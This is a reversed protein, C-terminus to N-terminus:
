TMTANPAHDILDRGGRATRRELGGLQAHLRPIDFLEVRKSNILPLFEKYLESKSKESVRYTVGRQEFRERVFEGGWRDGTVEHIGYRNLLDVFDGVVSNPSFPPRTACPTSSRSM